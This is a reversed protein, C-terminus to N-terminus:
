TGYAFSALNREQQGYRLSTSSCRGVTWKNFSAMFADRFGPPPYSCALTSRVRSSITFPSPHSLRVAQAGVLCLVVSSAAACPIGCGAPM